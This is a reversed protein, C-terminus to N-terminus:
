IVDIIEGSNNQTENYLAQHGSRSVRQIEVNIGARKARM